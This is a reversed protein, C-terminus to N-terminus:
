KGNSQTYMKQIICRKYLVDLASQDYDAKYLYILELMKRVVQRHNNETAIEMCCGYNKAGYATMLEILAMNGTRAGSVMFYERDKQDISDTDSEIILKAIEFNDSDIAMSQKCKHSTLLRKVLEIHGNHAAIELATRHRAEHSLLPYLLVDYGKSALTCLKDVDSHFKWLTIEKYKKYAEDPTAPPEIFSSIDRKWIIKWFSSPLKLDICQRSVRLHVCKPVIDIIEHPSFYLFLPMILDCPLARLYSM